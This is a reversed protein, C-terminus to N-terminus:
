DAAAKGTLHGAQGGRSARVKAAVHRRLPASPRAPLPPPSASAAPPGCVGASSHSSACVNLTHLAFHSFSLQFPFFFLSGSGGKVKCLRTIKLGRRFAASGNASAPQGALIMVVKISDM